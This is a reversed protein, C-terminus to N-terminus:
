VLLKRRRFEDFESVHLYGRYRCSSEFRICESPDINRIPRAPNGALVVYGDPFSKTVVAGAAVVTFDGLRVGPLVVSNMALWCYSGIEVRKRISVRSDTVAHNSSIIGVGPAIQTYDGIVVGGSGQIYCGSMLGPSTEIGILISRWNQVTSSPHVPWYPVRDDGMLFRVFQANFPAPTQTARTEIWMRGWKTARLVNKVFLKSRNM